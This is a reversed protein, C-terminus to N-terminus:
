TGVPYFSSNTGTLGNHTCTVIARGTGTPNTPPTDYTWAVYGNGNAVKPNTLGGSEQGNPLYAHASCKAGAM